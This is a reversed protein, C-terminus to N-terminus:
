VDGMKEHLMQELENTNGFGLKKVLRQKFKYLSNPTYNLILCMDPTPIQLIFLCCWLIDKYSIGPYDNKLKQPLNNLVKNMKKIFADEDEFHLVENYIKKNIEERQQFDSKKWAASYKTRTREMEDTLDLLMLENKKELETKYIEAERHKQEKRRYLFWVILLAILSLCVVLIILLQRQNKVTTAAKETEHMQEITSLNSQQEISRISDQLYRQAKLYYDAQKTNGEELAVKTLLRFCEEEIYLNIPRELAYRLYVKVSDYQQIQFFTNAINYLRMSENTGESPYKLSERM